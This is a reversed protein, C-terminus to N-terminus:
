VESGVKACTTEKREDATTGSGLGSSPDPPISNDDGGGGSRRGHKGDDAITVSALPVDVRMSVSRSPSSIMTAVAAPPSVVSMTDRKESASWVVTPLKTRSVVSPLADSASVGVCWRETPLTQQAMRLCASSTFGPSVTHTTSGDARLGRGCTTVPAASSCRCPSCEGRGICPVKGTTSPTTVENLVSASTTSSPTSSGSASGMQLAVDLQPRSRLMTAQPAHADRCTSPSRAAAQLRNM